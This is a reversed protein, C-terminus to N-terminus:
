IGQEEEWKRNLPPSAQGLGGLCLPLNKRSKSNNREEFIIKKKDTMPAAMSQLPLTQKPPPLKPRPASANKMTETSSVVLSVM